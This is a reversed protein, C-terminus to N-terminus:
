TGILGGNTGYSPLHTPSGGYSAVAGGSLLTSVIQSLGFTVTAVGNADTVATGLPVGGASAFNITQGPLGANGATLRASVSGITVKILSPGGLKILLPDVELQTPTKPIWTITATAPASVRDEGDVTQHVRYTLTSVTSNSIVDLLVFGGSPHFDAVLANGTAGILEATLPGGGEVGLDNDLVNGVVDSGQIASYAEDNADPVSYITLTAPDSTVVQGNVTQDVVYTVTNVNSAAVVDLMVVYGSASFDTLLGQGTTGILRATIAGGGEVGVDNALVGPPLIAVHDGVPMTATDDNAIPRLEQASAAPATVLVTTGILVAVTAARLIRRM